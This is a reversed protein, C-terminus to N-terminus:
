PLAEWLKIDYHMWSIVNSYHLLHPQKCSSIMDPSMKPGTWSSWSHFPHWFGQPSHSWIPLDAGPCIWSPSPMLCHLSTILAKDWHTSHLHAKWGLSCTPPGQSLGPLLLHAGLSPPLLFCPSFKTVPQTASLCTIPPPLAPGDCLSCLCSLLNVSIETTFCFRLQTRNLEVFM